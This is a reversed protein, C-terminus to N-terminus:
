RGAPGDLIELGINPLATISPEPPAMMQMLLEKGLPPHEAYQRFLVTAIQDHGRADCKLLIPVLSEQKSLLFQEPKQLIITRRFIDLRDYQSLM